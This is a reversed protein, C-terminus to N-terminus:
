KKVIRHQSTKYGNFLHVFYTGNALSSIDIKDLVYRKIVVKGLLDYITILLESNNGSINFIDSTPNPYLILKNLNFYNNDPNESSLSSNIDFVISHMSNPELDLPIYNNDSNFDISNYTFNEDPNDSTIYHEIYTTQNPIELSISESGTENYLQVVIKSDDDSKFASGILNGDALGIDIRQYGPKVLNAFHKFVYYRKPLIINNSSDWVVLGSSGFNEGSGVENEYQHKEYFLHLMYSTLGGYNFGNIIRDIHYKADTMDFDPSHLNGAETVWVPKEMSALKLSNWDSQDISGQYTHTAVIDVADVVSTNSFMNSIYNKTSTSNNDSNVRFCEPSIIKVDGMGENNLRTNLNMLISSLESPSTNMSEYSVEYDPENTPSIATVNIGYQSQMGSLFAFLFESYENEGGSILTGGGNHSNNTKLWAPASNCNGIIHDFGNISLNFANNLAEAVYRTRWIAPDSNYRTWDLQSEDLIFPNSNDNPDELDHYVFFRIMNAHLDEFAYSEIEERMSDNLSYLNETQRKIGAGFGDVTQYTIEPNLTVYNGPFVGVEDLYYNIGSQMYWFLIKNNENSIDPTFTYCYQEWQNTLFIDVGQYSNPADSRFVLKLQADNENSKAFFCVTYEQGGQVEFLYTSQTNVDWNDVGLSIIESKLARTSGSILNNTEILFNAEGGNNAVNNWWLFEESSSDIDEFNGNALPLQNQSVSIFSVM